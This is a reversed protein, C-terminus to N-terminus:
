GARRRGRAPVARVGPRACATVAGRVFRVAARTVAARPAGSTLQRIADGVCAALLRLVVREDAVGLEALAPRVLAFVQQHNEAARRGVEGAPSSRGAGGLAAGVRHKGAAFLDLQARVFAEVRDLPARAGAMASRVEDLWAPLEAEVLAAVLHDRSPFYEYVSSRALGARDAVPGFAVAGPGGELLLARAAALLRARQAERHERVTPASIRPM